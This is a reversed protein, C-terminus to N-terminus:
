PHVLLTIFYNKIKNFVNELLVCPRSGSLSQDNLFLLMYMQTTDTPQHQIFVHYSRNQIIMCKGMQDAGNCAEINISFTGIPYINIYCGITKNIHRTSIDQQNSGPVCSTCSTAVSSKVIIYACSISNHNIILNILLFVCFYPENSGTWCRMQNM